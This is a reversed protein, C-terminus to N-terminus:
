FQIWLIFFSIFLCILTTLLGPVLFDRFRIPVGMSAASEVVILNSMAGLITANGAITSASALGLWLLDSQAGKLIPLMLVAYPVNSVFQSLGLSVIHLSALGQMSDPFLDAGLLPQLLGTQEFSGVVVFLAGFFLLLVWDVKQIVQSPKTKGLLLILAAGGLAVLPISFGLIKGFFFGAVVLAFVFLSRWMESLRKVATEPISLRDKNRFQTPYLLRMLWLICFMGLFAIPLLHLLFQTYSMGSAMGILMNQPNGTMTMLSGVNSALIEAILYPIPPLGATRCLTILVPTFMLVVADNVLFASCIGTAFVLLTLLQFRTKAFRTAQRAIWTFFGDLQLAAILIMMGLLLFLTNFDIFSLAQDTRVVGFLVMAIAGSFAASPRDVNVGPLRTFLIGLYTVVFIGLGILQSTAM